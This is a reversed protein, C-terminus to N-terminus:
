EAPPDDQPLATETACPEDSTDNPLSVPPDTRRGAAQHATVPKLGDYPSSLRDPRTAYALESSVTPIKAGVARHAAVASSQRSVCCCFCVSSNSEVCVLGLSTNKDWTFCNAAQAM